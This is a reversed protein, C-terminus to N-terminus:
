GRNEDTHVRYITDGDLTANEESPQYRTCTPTDCPTTVDSWEGNEIPNFGLLLAEEVTRCDECLASNPALELSPLGESDIDTIRWRRGQMDLDIFDGTIEQISQHYICTGLPIAQRCAVPHEIVGGDADFTVYHGGDDKVIIYGADKLARILKRAIISGLRVGGSIDISSLVATAELDDPM